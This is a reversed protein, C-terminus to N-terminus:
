ARKIRPGRRVRAKSAEYVFGVIGLSMAQKGFFLHAPLKLILHWPFLV